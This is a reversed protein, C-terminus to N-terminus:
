TFAASKKWAGGTYVYLKLNTSDWYLPFGTTTAPTGTPNGAAGPINIFGTTMNTALTVQPSFTKNSDILFSLANLASNFFKITNSAIGLYDAADNVLFLGRNGASNNGQYDLRGQLTGNNYLSLRALQNSTTTSLKVEPATTHRVHVIGGTEVTLRPTGSIIVSTQTNTYLLTEYAASGAFFGGATSGEIGLYFDATTNKLRISLANSGGNTHQLVVNSTVSSHITGTEDVTVLPTYSNANDWRGIEFFRNAVGSSSSNPKLRLGFGYQNTPKLDYLQGDGVVYILAADTAPAVQHRVNGGFIHLRDTPNSLGLGVRDTSADVFLLHTQADGEVRFDQDVGLENFVAETGGVGNFPAELDTWNQNIETAWDIDGATPKSLNM